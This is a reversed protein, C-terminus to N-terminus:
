KVGSILINTNFVFGCRVNLNNGTITYRTNFLMPYIVIASFISILIMILPQPKGFGIIIVTFPVLILPILIGYSVKSRYILPQNAM